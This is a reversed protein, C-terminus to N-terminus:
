LVGGLWLGTLVAFLGLVGWGAAKMAWPALFRAGLRVRVIKPMADFWTVTHILALVLFVGSLLLVGDHTHFGVWARWAREGANAAVLGWVLDVAFLAVLIASAERLMYLRSSRRALFWTRPVPPTYPARASRGFDVHQQRASM